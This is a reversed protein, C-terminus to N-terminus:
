GPPALKVWYTPQFVPITRGTASDVRNEDVGGMKGSGEVVYARAKAVIQQTGLVPLQITHIVYVGVGIHSPSASGTKSIDLTPMNADDIEMYGVQGRPNTALATLTTTRKVSTPIPLPLHWALDYYTVTLPHVKFRM